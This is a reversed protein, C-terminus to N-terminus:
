KRNYRKQRERRDVEGERDAERGAYRLADGVASAGLSQWSACVACTRTTREDDHLPAGCGRCTPGQHRIM